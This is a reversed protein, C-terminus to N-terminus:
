RHNVTVDAIVDLDFKMDQESLERESSDFPTQIKSIPGTTNSVVSPSIGWVCVCVCVCMFACMSISVQWVGICIPRLNIFYLIM